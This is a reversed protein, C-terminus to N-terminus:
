DLAASVQPDVVKKPKNAPETEKSEAESGKEGSGVDGESSNPEGRRRRFSNEFDQVEKYVEMVLNEDTIVSLDWWEPYQVLATDLVALAYNFSETYDDIGQGTPNDNEDRVTYMHGCLEAKKKAIKTRDLISQRKCTFQGSYEEGDLASKFEVRFSKAKNNM